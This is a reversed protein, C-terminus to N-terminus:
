RREKITRISKGLLNMLTINEHNLLFLWLKQRFYTLNYGVKEISNIFLEFKKIKQIVEKKVRKEENTGFLDQVYNIMVELYKKHFISILETTNDDQTVIFNLVETRVLNIDRYTNIDFTNTISGETDRYNYLYENIYILSNANSLLTLVELLDEGHRIEYFDPYPVKKYINKRFALSWLSNLTTGSALKHSIEEFNNAYFVSKDPFIPERTTIVIGKDNTLKSNFMVIDYSDIYKNISMLLNEEWFDDSDLFICVNGKAEDIGNRRASAVGQNRQHITRVRSDEQSFNDSITPTADISGDNIIIVEFDTYTQKLVSEICNVLNKEANYAPIIVSFRM